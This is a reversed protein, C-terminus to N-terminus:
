QKIRPNLAAVYEDERLAACLCDSDCFTKDEIVVTADDCYGVRSAELRKVHLQGLQSMIARGCYACTDM